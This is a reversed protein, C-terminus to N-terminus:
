SLSGISRLLPVNKWHDRLARGHSEPLNALAGGLASTRARQLTENVADQIPNPAVGIREALRGFSAASLMNMSRQGDLKLGTSPPRMEKWAVTAVQDYLPSLIPMAPDEYLFSWNKLHADSNGCAVMFALRRVFEILQDDGAVARVLAACREYTFGYKQEPHLGVAQAFDEQHVRLSLRRDYRRVVLLKEGEPVHDRLRPPLSESLALFIDPVRFGCAIAWSLIAYENEPLRPFRRSPFKVIWHGEEGQRAPLSLRGEDRIMSFKLQIGALSFRLGVQSGTEEGEHLEEFPVENEEVIQASVAEKLIV